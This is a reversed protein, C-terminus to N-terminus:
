SRQLSLSVSQPVLIKLYSFLNGELAESYLEYFRDTNGFVKGWLSEEGLKLLPYFSDEGANRVAILDADFDDDQFGDGFLLPVKLKRGVRSGFYGVRWFVSSLRFSNSNSPVRSLEPFHQKFLKEVVKRGELSKDSISLFFNVYEPDMHPSAIPALWELAKPYYSVFNRQRTWIDTVVSKQLNTGEFSEFIYDMKEKLDTELVKTNGFFDLQALDQPKWVKSQSFSLLNHYGHQGAPVGTMFGSTLLTKRSDQFRSLVKKMFEFQYMAHMHLGSGFIRHTEELAKRSLFNYDLQVFEWDVGVKSALLQASRVEISKEAGYTWLSLRENLSPLESAAALIMRSDYGSSLPLLVHDAHGLSQLVLRSNLSDLEQALESLSRGYRLDTAGITKKSFLAPPRKRETFVTKHDPLCQFIHKWITDDWLLHSLRMLGYLGAEDIDNTTTDTAIVVCPELNSLVLGGKSYSYFCPISGAWDTQVSVLREAIEVMLHRDSEAPVGEVKGLRIVLADNNPLPLSERVVISILNGRTEFSIETLNFSNALLLNHARGREFAKTDSGQVLLFSVADIVAKPGSSDM